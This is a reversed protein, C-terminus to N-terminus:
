VEHRKVENMIQVMAYQSRRFEKWCDNDICWKCLEIFSKPHELLIFDIIKKAMNFNEGFYKDLDFNSNIISRDYQFKGKLKDDKNGHILYKVAGKFRGELPNGDSDVSKIGAQVWKSSIGLKVAVAGITSPSPKGDGTLDRLVIHYHPDKLTGDDKMDQDHLAYAWEDFESLNGLVEATDFDDTVAPLLLCFYSAQVKEREKQKDSLDAM